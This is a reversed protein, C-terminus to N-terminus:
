GILHRTANALAYSYLINYQIIINPPNIREYVTRRFFKEHFVEVTLGQYVYLVNLDKFLASPHIIPHARYVMFLTYHSIFSCSSYAHRDSQIHKVSTVNTAKQVARNKNVVPKQRCLSSAFLKAM